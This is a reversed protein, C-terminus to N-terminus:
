IDSYYSKKIYLALCLCVRLFVFIASLIIMYIWKNDVQINNYPFIAYKNSITDCVYNSSNSYICGFVSEYYSDLKHKPFNPPIATFEETAIVSIGYNMFCIYYLFHSYFLTATIPVLLGTFYVQFFMYIAYLSSSIEISFLSFLMSLTTFVLGLLTYEFIFYVFNGYFQLLGVNIGVTICAFLIHKWIDTITKTIVYVWASYFVMEKQVIRQEFSFTVICPFSYLIINFFICFMLATFRIYIWNEISTNSQFLSVNQFVLGTILNFLLILGFHFINQKESRIFHKIERILLYKMQSFCNLKSRKYVSNDPIQQYTLLPRQFSYRNQQQIESEWTENFFMHVHPNDNLLAIYEIVDYSADIEYGIYEMYYVLSSVKGTYIIEGKSLFSIDDFLQLFQNPVYDLEVIVNKNEESLSRLTNLLYKACYSNLNRLPKEALLISPNKVLEIGIMLLMKDMSSLNRIISSHKYPEQIHLKTIWYNVFISREQYEMDGSLYLNTYFIMLEYPSLTDHFLYENSVFGINIDCFQADLPRFSVTGSDQKKIGALIRFLTDCSDHETSVILSMRKAYFTTSVKELFACGNRKYCVDKLIIDVLNSEM